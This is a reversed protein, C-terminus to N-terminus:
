ITDPSPSQSSLESDLEPDILVVLDGNGVADPDTVVFTLFRDDTALAIELPMSGDEPSFRIRSFRLKGDVFVRIDAESGRSANGDRPSGGLNSVSANLFSAECKCARRIAQLDFTIGVNSHLGMLGNRSNNLSAFVASLSRVSWLGHGAASTLDRNSSMDFRRRAWIPGWTTGSSPPLYVMHADSDIQMERANSRPIFVGDVMPNWPTRTFQTDGRRQTAQGPDVWSLQGWYGTKPDVSGAIQPHAANEGNLLDLLSIATTAPGTFKSQVIARQFRPQTAPQTDSPGHPGITMSMGKQLRTGFTADDRGGLSQVQVEGEFVTVDTGTQSLGVGFETGLDVINATSTLISFNGKDARGVVRGAILRASTASSVQLTAPSEVVLSAGASFELCILGNKLGVVDGPRLRFLLDQPEYGRRWEVDDTASTVRAVVEGSESFAYVAKSASSAAIKDGGDGQHLFVAFLVMAAVTTAAAVWRTQPSRFVAAARASREPLSAMWHNNAGVAAEDPSLAKEIVLRELELAIERDHPDDSQSLLNVVASADVYSQDRTWKRIGEDLHVTQIYKWRAEESEALLGALRSLDVDALKDYALRSLLAGLEESTEPGNDRVIDDSL